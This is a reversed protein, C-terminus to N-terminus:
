VPIAITNTSDFCTKEFSIGCFPSKRPEFKASAKLLSLLYIRNNEMDM